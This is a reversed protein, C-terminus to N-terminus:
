KVSDHEHTVGECIGRADFRLAVHYAGVSTTEMWQLLTKDHPLASITRPNGVLSIIEAKTKGRLVGAKGFKYRLTAPAGNMAAGIVALPLLVILAAVIPEM